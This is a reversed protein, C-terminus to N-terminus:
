KLVYLEISNDSNLMYIMSCTAKKIRVVNKYFTFDFELCNIAEIIATQPIINFHSTSM